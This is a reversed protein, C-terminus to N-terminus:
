AWDLVDDPTSCVVEADDLRVPERYQSAVFARARKVAERKNNASVLIPQLSGVTDAWFMRVKYLRFLKVTQEGIAPGSPGPNIM